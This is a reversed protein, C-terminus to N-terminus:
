KSFEGKLIAMIIMDVFKGNKYVSQRKIGEQKFGVKKYLKLAHENNELVTLEIRNLNMNNFAHNLIETTAFYGIGKGRNDTHGIMIHFVASQNIFNINTLSVIGLIINEDKGEVISCRVISNRNQMYNEYWRYDVDLNIYRFPAGLCNILESENRWKNIKPIDEKWLERLKYM